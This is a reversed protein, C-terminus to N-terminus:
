GALGIPSGTNPSGMQLRPRTGSVVAEAINTVM